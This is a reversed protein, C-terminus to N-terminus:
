DMPECPVDSAKEGVEATCETGYNGCSDVCKNHADEESVACASATFTDREITICEYTDPDRETCRLCNCHCFYTYQTENEEPKNDSGCASLSMIIICIFINSKM